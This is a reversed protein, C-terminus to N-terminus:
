FNLPVFRKIRDRGGFSYTSSSQVAKFAKNFFIEEQLTM